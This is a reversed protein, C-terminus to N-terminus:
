PGLDLLALFIALTMAITAFFALIVPDFVITRRKKEIVARVTTLDPPGLYDSIRYRWDFEEGSDVGYLLEAPDGSAAIRGNVLIALDHGLARALSVDHTTVLFTGGTRAQAGLISSIIQDSHLKDVASDPDDLVVLPRDAVLTAALAVRRRTRAALQAPLLEAMETLHFEQLQRWTRTTVLEEGLGIQMLPTAVNEFVTMSGYVSSDFITSGGLLVATSKRLETLENPNLEWMMKDGVLIQGSNPRSLGALHRVLTTKGSGSPGMLVTIRGPEVCLNLHAFLPQDGIITSIDRFEVSPVRGPEMPYLSQGNM